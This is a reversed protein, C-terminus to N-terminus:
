RYEWECYPDGSVICKTEKVHLNKIAYFFGNFFGTTFYCCPEKRINAFLVTRLSEINERIRITENMFIKGVKCYELFNLIRKIADNESIGEDMLREGVKKGSKAGGMRQAMRYRDGAIHPFGMAHGAVHFHVDGGLTPRNGLPKGNLL